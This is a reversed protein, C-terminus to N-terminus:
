WNWHLSAGAEVPQGANTSPEAWVDLNMDLAHSADPGVRYGLRLDRMQDTGGGSLRVYPSSVMGLSRSTGHSAEVSWRSEGDSGDFGTPFSGSSMLSTVSGSTSVGLGQTFVMSFGQQTDPRPDYSFNLGVGWDRYDGDDHLALARGEVGFSLGGADRWDFGGGIELGMGTEADGGDHRLGLSLRPTQISGSDLVQAWSAEVGTRVQTTDSSIASSPAGPLPDSRTKTWLADAILDLSAGGLAAVNGLAGRVGGTLMSWDIDTRTSVGGTPTFTVDGRGLGAAGWLSLTSSVEVGGYPVLATLDSKMEGAATTMTGTVDTTGAVDGSGRSRSVMLGFLGAGQRWDAGLQVGTVRGDINGAVGHGDFGSQSAQGWFGLSMGADTDRMFAFSTGLLVEESTLSWSSPSATSLPSTADVGQELLTLLVARNHANTQRADGSERLSIAQGAIQGQFGASRNASIRNRVAAAAQDGVTRGFRPLYAELPRGTRRVAAEAETVVDFEVTFDVIQQNDGATMLPSAAPFAASPGAASATYIVEADDGEPLTRELHLIISGFDVSVVPITIGNVTVTFAEPNPTGDIENLMADFELTLTRRGVILGEVSPETVPTVTVPVYVSMAQSAAENGNGAADTASDAAIDLTVAGDEIPEVKVTWATNSNTGSTTVLTFDSLEANSVTINEQTFGNVPESFTITATFTGRATEPVDGITVTPATSDTFVVPFELMILPDITNGANDIVTITVTSIASNEMTPTGSIEGTMPDILLGVPLGTASFSAIDTDSTVPSISIETGVDLRTPATYTVTPATNDPGVLPLDLSYETENGVDDTVTITVTSTASNEMTPTGSIVGSSDIMLGTPLGTASFSVIDTDSTVPSISIIETGVELTTPATYTVTPALNDLVYSNENQGEPTTNALANGSLDTINQNDAFSLTVTGDLTPIDGGAVFVDRTGTIGPDIINLTTNTAGSVVFDAADIDAVEESFTVRWKLAGGSANTPSIAPNERTISMVTPPTSDGVSPTTSANPNGNVFISAGTRSSMYRSSDRVVAVSMIANTFQSSAPIDRLFVTIIVELENAGFTVPVIAQDLVLFATDLRPDPFEFRQGGSEIAAVYPGYSKGQSNDDVRVRVEFPQSQGEETRKVIFNVMGGDAIFSREEAERVVSVTPLQQAVLPSSVLLFIGAILLSLVPIAFSRMLMFWFNSTRVEQARSKELAPFRLTLFNYTLKCKQSVLIM